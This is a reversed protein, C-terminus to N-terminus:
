KARVFRVRRSAKKHMRRWIALADKDSVGAPAIGTTDHVTDYGKVFDGLVDVHRYTNKYTFYKFLRDRITRHVREIVACKVDPNRCVSFELGERKLM